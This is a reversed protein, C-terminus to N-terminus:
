RDADAAGGANGPFRHAFCISRFCRHLDCRNPLLEMDQGDINGGFIHIDARNEVLARVIAPSLDEELDIRVM